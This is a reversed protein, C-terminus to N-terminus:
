EGKGKQPYHTKKYFLIARRVVAVMSRDERQAILRVAERLEDTLAYTVPKTDTM